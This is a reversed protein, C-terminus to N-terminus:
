MRHPKADHKDDEKQTSGVAEITSELSVVWDDMVQFFRGWEADPLPNSGHLMTNFKQDWNEM